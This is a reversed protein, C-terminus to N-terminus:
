EIVEDARALLQLPIQLNLAKATRLNILFDFKTPQLVPLDAPQEGKLIRGVYIGAQRIVDATSAGYSALGGAFSYSRSQAFLPLNQQLALDSLRDRFSAFYLNTIIFVANVQQRAFSTFAPAFDMEDMVREVIVTIRLRDAAATAAATEPESNTFRPCMLVGVKTVQPLLEHLLDMQKSPLNGASLRVGTVNAGPRNFSSVLGAAVPDTGGIFVMPIASSEAKAAIIANVPGCVVAVKDRVLDIALTPLQDVEAGSRHDIIVNRRDIFGIENLGRVFAEFDPALSPSRVDIFGVVPLGRQARAVVPWAAAGGLVTIFERRRV